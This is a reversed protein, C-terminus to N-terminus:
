KLGQRKRIQDTLAEYQPVFQKYCDYPIEESKSLENFEVEPHKKKAIHKAIAQHSGAGLLEPGSPTAAIIMQLGGLTALKFVRKAGLKGIEKKSGPEIQNADIEM